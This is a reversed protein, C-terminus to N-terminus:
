RYQPKLQWVGVGNINDFNCLEQLMSKFTASDNPVNRCRFESLIEETTAQSDVSAQCSIFNRMDTILDMYNIPVTVNVSTDDDSDTQNDALGSLHNRSRMATILDASTITNLTSQKNSIQNNSPTSTIQQGALTGDFLTPTSPM